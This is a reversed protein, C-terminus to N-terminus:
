ETQKGYNKKTLKDLEKMMLTRAFYCHDVEGMELSKAVLRRIYEPNTITIAIRKPIMTKNKM